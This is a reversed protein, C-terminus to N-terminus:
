DSRAAAWRSVAGFVLGLGFLLTGVFGTWVLGVQLWEPLAIKRSLAVLEVGFGICAILAALRAGDLDLRELTGLHLLACVLLGVTGLLGKALQEAEGGGADLSAAAVWTAGLIVSGLVAGFGAEGRVLLATWGVALAFAGLVFMGTIFLPEVAGTAFLVCMAIGGAALAAGGVAVCADPWRSPVRRERPVGAKRESADAERAATPAPARPEADSGSAADFRYGCYRCKRAADQVSEACDPCTKM